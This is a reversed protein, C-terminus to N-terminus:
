EGEWLASRKAIRRGPDRSELVADAARDASVRAAALRGRLRMPDGAEAEIRGVGM